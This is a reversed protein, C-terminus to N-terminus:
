GVTGSATGNYNGWADVVSGRAVFASEGLRLPDASVWRGDRAVARVARTKGNPRVFTFTASAADGADLWPRFSCTLCYWELKSADGPAAPDRVATREHHVFRVPSAYTDPYDIPGITADIAPTGSTVPITHRPGVAFSVRGDGDVRLGDVTIGSWPRVAFEKSVLPYSVTAGGERRRGSVVFRYTGAPTAREARGGLATLDFQSVFAEFTATWEWRQEGALYAPADERAPFKLTVPVEGSQDAYPRWAGDVKREVAVQPDDVYNDGGNWTFLAADFREVDSPQRVAEAKGGDDPLADEYAQAGAGGTEGLATARVDNHALDATAKADLPEAAPAAGGNLSRGLGVLRTAFYDSSHPGWGTLAKRYHDGRQYERYTALYGNYDNAMSIPVTLRYGAGANEPTDDHTYNGKIQAPDAPESEAYPLYDPENWGNAPNNVQARM